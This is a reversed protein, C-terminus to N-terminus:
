WGVADHRVAAADHQDHRVLRLTTGDRKDGGKTVEGLFWGSRSVRAVHM